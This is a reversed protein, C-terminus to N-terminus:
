FLEFPEKSIGSNTLSTAQRRLSDYGNGLAAELLPLAVPKTGPSGEVLGAPLPDAPHTQVFQVVPGIGVLDLDTPIQVSGPPSLAQRRLRSQRGQSKAKPLVLKLADDTHRSGPIRGCSPHHLADSELLLTDALPFPHLYDAISQVPHDPLRTSLPLSLRQQRMLDQKGHKNCRESWSDHLILSLQSSPEEQM